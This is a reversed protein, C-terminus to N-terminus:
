RISRLALRALGVAAGAVLVDAGVSLAEREVADPDGRVNGAVDIAFWTGNSIVVVAFDGDPLDLMGEFDARNAQIFHGIRRKIM